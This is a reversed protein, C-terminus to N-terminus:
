NLNNLNIKTIGQGYLIELIYNNFTMPMEILYTEPKSANDSIITIMLNTKPSIKYDLDKFSVVLEALAKEHVYPTQYSFSETPDKVIQVGFSKGPIPEDSGSYTLVSSYNLYEIILTSKSLDVSGFGKYARVRLKLIKVYENNNTIVVASILELKPLGLNKIDIQKQGSTNALEEASKILQEKKEKPATFYFLIGAFILFIVVFGFLVPYNLRLKSTKREKKKDIESSDSKIDSVDPLYYEENDM